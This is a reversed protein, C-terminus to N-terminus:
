AMRSDLKSNKALGSSSADRRLEIIPSTVCKNKREERKPSKNEPMPSRTRQGM